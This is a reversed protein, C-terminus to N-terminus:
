GLDPAGRMRPLQALRQLNERAPEYDPALLLAVRWHRQAESREGLIEAIVGFLNFAEPRRDDEDVAEELRVLAAPFDRGLVQERAQEVLAGYRAPDGGRRLRSGNGAAALTLAREVVQDAGREGALLVIRPGGSGGVDEARLAGLTRLGAPSLDVVVLDLSPDSAWDPDPESEAEVAVAFGTARLAQVLESRRPSPSAVVLAHRGAERGARQVGERIVLARPTDRM